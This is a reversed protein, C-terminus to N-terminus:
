IKEMIIHKTKERKISLKEKIISIKKLMIILKEGVNPGDDMM